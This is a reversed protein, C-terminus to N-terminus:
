FLQSAEEFIMNFGNLQMTSEDTADTQARFHISHANGIAYVSAWDAVNREEIAYVDTDWVADDYVASATEATQPTGLTANDKFDTSIGLAPRADSDATILPQILKAEKNIGPRNLYHYAGQGTADIAAGADSGGTDAKYVVGANGGFYLEDKFVAWCNANQGTFRCWSGNLTNMVYQHQVSGATIPVNLVVYTGKPYPVLQWGFNAKYSRAAINMANAINRTMSVSSAANRDVSLAESLPLV